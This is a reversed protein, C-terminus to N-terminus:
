KIQDLVKKINIDGANIAKFIKIEKKRNVVMYRPIWDLDAFDGLAGKMGAQLYYHEGKIQYKEIARKWIAENRDASLFVFSVEPYDSQLQKLKPMGVICDKCWSAWFDVVIVKEKHQDLINEWTIEAGSLTKLKEALADESFLVPPAGLTCSMM